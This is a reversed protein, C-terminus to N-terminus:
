VSCHALLAAWYRHKLAPIIKQTVYSLAGAYPNRQLNGGSSLWLFSEPDTLSNLYDQNTIQM